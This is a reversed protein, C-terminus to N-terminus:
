IRKMKRSAEFDERIGIKGIPSGIASVKIEAHDLKQKIAKAEEVSYTSINRGYVGRLELYSM